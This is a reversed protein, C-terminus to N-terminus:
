EGSVEKLLSEIKAAVEEVSLGASEVIQADEALTLPSEERTIDRHDREEMERRVKLYEQDMGRNTLEATRRKAREELSATLYVKLTADPAIVTTADRGELIVGGEQVMRRQFAVLVKRLPGFTSLASAFEGIEPQRIADTVDEGNVYVRQPNGHGFSIELQEALAAAKPGDEKGLGARLAFLAVARYTAGTDLYTLDLREALLKAVTSKGAGAPGDIAIVPRNM